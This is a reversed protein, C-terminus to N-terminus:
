SPSRPRTSPRPPSRTTSNARLIILCESRMTAGSAITMASAPETRTPWSATLIAWPKSVTQTFVFLAYLALSVVAPLSNAVLYEGVKTKERLSKPEGAPKVAVRMTATEGTATSVPRLMWVSEVSSVVTTEMSGM